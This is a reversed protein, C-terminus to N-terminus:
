PDTISDHYFYKCNYMEYFKSFSSQSDAYEFNLEYDWLEMVDALWYEIIMAEDNSIRRSWNGVNQTSLGSFVKGDHSNGSYPQGLITPVLMSDVYEIDLFGAVKRMTEEPQVMLDEFRIALFSEPYRQQNQKAAILDMRVRNILSALVDISEEGFGSYYNDVGARLAAFNDRPDRILSIMKLKPFKEKFYKFFIAQSTEKFVFPLTTVQIKQYSAWAEFVALIMESKDRLDRGAIRATFIDSLEDLDIKVVSNEDNVLELGKRFVRIVRSRLDTECIEKNGTFCPFYAYLISIDVPYLNISDLNDFLRHFVSTGSKRHGTLIVPLLEQKTM